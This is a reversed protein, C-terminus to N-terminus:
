YVRSRPDPLSSSERAVVRYVRRTSPYTAPQFKGAGCSLLRSKQPRAPQFKGAGCSLLRSKKPRAPQFEGAGFSPLRSTKLPIHCAPVRGRWLVTSAVHQPTQPLSSSEQLNTLGEWSIDTNSDARPLQIKCRCSLLWLRRRPTLTLFCRCPKGGNWDTHDQIIHILSITEYNSVDGNFKGNIEVDEHSPCTAFQGWRDDLIV